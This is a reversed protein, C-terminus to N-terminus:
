PNPCCFASRVRTARRWCAHVGLPEWRDNFLRVLRSDWRVWLRHELYELPASCYVKSVELHGDRHVMRRTEHFFPFREAPLPM